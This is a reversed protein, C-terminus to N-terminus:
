FVGVYGEYKLDKKERNKRLREEKDGVFLSKGSEHKLKVKTYTEREVSAVHQTFFVRKRTFNM